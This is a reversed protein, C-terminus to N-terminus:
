HLHARIADALGPIASLHAASLTTCADRMAMAIAVLRGPNTDADPSWTQGTLLRDQTALAFHYLEGDLGMIASPASSSLMMQWADLIRAATADTVPIECREIALDRPDRPLSRELRDIEAQTTDSGKGDTSTIQQQKMLQLVTYQWLQDSPRLM